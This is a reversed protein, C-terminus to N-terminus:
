SELRALWGARYKPKRAGLAIYGGAAYWKLAALLAKKHPYGNIASLSIPGLIGDEQLAGGLLNVAKQLWLSAQRVGSLAALDFVRCALERDNLDGFHGANWYHQRYIRSAEEVTLNKINVAPFARKSIGHNTEGGPDDPDHVYGGERQLTRSVADTFYDIM